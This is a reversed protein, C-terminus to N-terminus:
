LAGDYVLAPRLYARNRTLLAALEHWKAAGQGSSSPLLMQQPCAWHLDGPDSM